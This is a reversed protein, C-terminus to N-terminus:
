WWGKKKTEETKEVEEIAFKVPGDKKEEGRPKKLEFCWTTGGHWGVRREEVVVLGSEGVIRGLDRNWWCGFERAHGEAGRDLIGNLWGWWGRGHELLLIRGEEEKLMGGLSRLLKVPDACSCLGMTQIITDYKGGEVNGGRENANKPPAPIEDECAADAIVWRVGLIGPFMGSFKEHAVELMEASKDLATFSKVNGRKLGKEGKVPKGVGNYGKFDFDYYELNRGTGISVELM